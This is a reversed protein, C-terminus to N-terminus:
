IRYLGARGSGTNRRTRGVSVRRWAKVPPRRSKESPSRQRQRDIGPRASSQAVASLAAEASVRASIAPAVDRLLAQGRLVSTDYVRRSGASQEDDLETDVATCLLNHARRKGHRLTRVPDQHVWRGGRFLTARLSGDPLREVRTVYEQM